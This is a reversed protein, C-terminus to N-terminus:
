STALASEIRPAEHHRGLSRGGLKHAARDRKPAGCTIGRTGTLADNGSGGYINMLDEVM